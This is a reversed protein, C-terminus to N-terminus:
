LAMGLQRTRDAQLPAYREQLDVGVWRRGLSQAVQGTTGSGLFPDLVLDGPRSGALICPEVLARPFTAFHAGRYPEAPITWVSRRNAKAWPSGDAQPPMGAHGQEGPRPAGARINALVRDSFAVLGVKTRHHPSGAAYAAAGKNTRNGSARGTSPEMIAAADFYYRPGMSLLFLYEHSKTCRDRVSEPMPNPKHWIVDQRLCWGDSQLAFAVRWPIGSLDKPKGVGYTDGLNLWLVGDKAIAQRVARFVAVLHGVFAWPEPELGLCGDWAPVTVPPLGPVPAFEVAPWHTAPVGYDRLGWYPPSTVCCQARLGAEALRPLVDLVHGFHCRDTITGTM